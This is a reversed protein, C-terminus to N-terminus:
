HVVTPLMVVLLFFFALFCPFYHLINNYRLTLFLKLYLIILQTLYCLSTLFSKPLHWQIQSSLPWQHDQLFCNIHFPLAFDSKCLTLSSMFLSSIYVTSLSWKNLKIQWLFELYHVNYPLFIILSLYNSEEPM